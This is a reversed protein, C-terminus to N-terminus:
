TESIGVDCYCFWPADTKWDVFFLNLVCKLKEIRTSQPLLHKLKKAVWILRVNAFLLLLFPILGKFVIRLINRYLMTYIENYYLESYQWSFTRYSM